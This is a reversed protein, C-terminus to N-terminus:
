ESRTRTDLQKPNLLSKEISTMERQRKVSAAKRDEETREIPTQSDVPFEESAESATEIAEATMKSIVAALRDYAAMLESSRTKLIESYLDRLALSADALTQPTKMQNKM